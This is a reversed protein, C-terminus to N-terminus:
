LILLIFRGLLRLLRDIEVLFHSNRFSLHLFRDRFGVVVIPVIVLVLDGFLNDLGFIVFFDFFFLILFFKGLHDFLLLDVVPVFFFDLDLAVVMEFKDLFFFFLRDGLVSVPGGLEHLFGAGFLDGFYDGFLDQERADLFVLFLNVFLFFKNLLFLFFKVNIKCFSFALGIVDEGRHEDIFVLGFHGGVDLLDALRIYGNGRLGHLRGHGAPGQLEGVSGGLVIEGLGQLDLVLGDLALQLCLRSGGLLEFLGPLLQQNLLGHVSGGAAEASLLGERGRGGM